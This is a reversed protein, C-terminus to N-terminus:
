SFIVRPFESRLLDIVAEGDCNVLSTDAGADLLLRVVEKQQSMCAIHLPSNGCDDTANVDAKGSLLYQVISLHGRDAAWHLCTMGDKDKLNVLSPNKGIVEKIANLNGISAMECLLGAVSEDRDTDAGIAGAPVSGSAWNSVQTYQARFRGGEQADLDTRLFPDETEDEDIPGLESKWRPFHTDLIRVYQAQAVKSSTGSKSLWAHRMLTRRTGVSCEAVDSRCDGRTAQKYLGYLELQVDATFYDAHRTFFQAGRQFDVSCPTGSVGECHPSVTAPLFCSNRRKFSGYVTVSVFGIAAIAFASIESAYPM